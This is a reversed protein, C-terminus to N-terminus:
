LHHFNSYEKLQYVKLTFGERKSISVVSAKNYKKLLLQSITIKSTPRPPNNSQVFIIGFEIEIIPLIEKSWVLMSPFVIWSIARWFAPIILSFESVIFNLWFAISLIIFFTQLSFFFLNCMIFEFSIDLM